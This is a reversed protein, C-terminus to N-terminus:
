HAQIRTRIREAPYASLCHSIVLFLESKDLGSASLNIVLWDLADYQVNKEVPISLSAQYLVAQEIQEAHLECAQLQTKLTPDQSRIHTSLAKRAQRIPTLINHHWPSSEAKLTQYHTRMDKHEFSLWMALLLFNIRHHKEDQLHLLQRQLATNKWQELSFIWFPNNLILQESDIM